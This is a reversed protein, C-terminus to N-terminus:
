TADFCWQFSLDTPGRGAASRWVIATVCNQGAALTEFSRDPGPAFFVQNQAPVRRLETTPIATGNLILAGEYGPALDIGVEAQQLVEAGRPPFVHEVVDPRGALASDDGGTETARVGLFLALAAVLLAATVALRYRLSSPPPGSHTPTPDTM